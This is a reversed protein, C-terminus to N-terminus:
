SSSASDVVTRPSRKVIKLCGLHSLANAIPSDLLSAARIAIITVVMMMTRARNIQVNFKNQYYSTNEDEIKNERSIM